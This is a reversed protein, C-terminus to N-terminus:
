ADCGYIEARLCIENYWHTPELRVYRAVFPAPAQNYQASNMDFNAPIAKGDFAQTWSNQDMSYWVELRTTWANVFPDVKGQTAIGTM